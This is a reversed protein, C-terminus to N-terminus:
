KLDTNRLYNYEEILEDLSIEYKNADAILNILRLRLTNVRHEQQTKATQAKIQEKIDKIEM